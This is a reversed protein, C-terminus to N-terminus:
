AAPPFAAPHHCCPGSTFTRSRSRRTYPSAARGPSSWPSTTTSTTSLWLRAQASEPVLDLANERNWDRLIGSAPAAQVAVAFGGREAEPVRDIVTSLPTQRADYNVARGDKRFGFNGDIDPQGVIAFVPVGTDRRKLYAAVGEGGDGSAQVAAWHAAAGRLVVPEEGAAVRDRFAAAGPAEPLAPLTESVM